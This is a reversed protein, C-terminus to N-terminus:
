FILKTGFGSSRGGGWFFRVITDEINKLKSASKTSMRLSAAFDVECIWNAVRKEAIVHSAAAAAHWGDLGDLDPM